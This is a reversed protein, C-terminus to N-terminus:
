EGTFHNKQIKMESQIIDRITKKQPSERSLAVATMLGITSIITAAVYIWMRRKNQLQKQQPLANHKKIIRNIRRSYFLMNVLMLCIYIGIEVYIFSDYINLKFILIASHYIVFLNFWQLLGFCYAAEGNPMHNGIYLKWKVVYIFIWIYIQEGWSLKSDYQKEMM